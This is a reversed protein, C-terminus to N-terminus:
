TGRYIPMTFHFTTGGNIVSDFGIFGGHQEIILKAIPLGLGYGGLKSQQHHNAQYFREFIHSQDEPLIGYGTDSVYITEFDNKNLRASVTVVGGPPTFKIANM